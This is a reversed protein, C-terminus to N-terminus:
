SPALLERRRTLFETAKPLKSQDHALFDHLAGVYVAPGVQRVLLADLLLCTLSTVRVLSHLFDMQWSDDVASMLFTEVDRYNSRVRLRFLFDFITTPMVQAAVDRKEAAKINKRNNRRKWEDFSIDLRRTRTTELMKCYRPWFTELSPNSLLEVKGPTAGEPLNSFSAEGIHPTGSCTVSWPLPVLSRASIQRSATRLSAAHDDVLGDFNLSAFWAQLGMYVAYYSHIPAWANSYRLLSMETDLALRLQTESAWEIALFRRIDKTKRPRHRQIREYGRLTRQTDLVGLPLPTDASEYTEELYERIAALYQKHVQFRRAREEEAATPVKLEFKTIPM